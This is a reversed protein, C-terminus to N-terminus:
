EQVELARLRAVEEAEHQLNRLMNEATWLDLYAYETRVGPRAKRVATTWKRFATIHDFSMWPSTNKADWKIRGIVRAGM